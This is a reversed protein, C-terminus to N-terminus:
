NLFIKLEVRQQPINKWIIEHLYLAMEYLPSNISSVIIRFPYNDKHIKPVGYARPLIGDSTYLRKYVQPPIYSKSKWRTLIDRLQSTLKKVPNNDLLEYTTSHSLLDNMKDIYKRRDIAVTVNGKDARCYIVNPNGKIFKKTDYFTRLIVQETYDLNYHQTSFNDIIQAANYRITQKNTHEMYHINNEINKIFEYTTCEINTPPLCFGNGLQLLAICTDPIEVESLNIFWKNHVDLIHFNLNQEFNILDIHVEIADTVERSTPNHSVLYKNHIHTSTEQTRNNEITDPVYWFKIHKIDKIHKYRNKRLLFKFKNSLRLNERINLWYSRKYQIECFRNWVYIPLEHTIERSLLVLQSRLQAIHIYSDRIEARLVSFLFRDQARTFM